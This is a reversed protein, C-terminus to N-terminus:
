SKKEHANADILHLQKANRNQNRLYKSEQHTSKGSAYGRVGVYPLYGVDRRQFGVDTGSQQLSWLNYEEGWEYEM